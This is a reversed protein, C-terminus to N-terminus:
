ESDTGPQWGASSTDTFTENALEGTAYRRATDIALRTREDYGDEKIEGLRKSLFEEGLM